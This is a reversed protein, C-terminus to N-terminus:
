EGTKSQKDSDKKPTGRLILVFLFIVVLLMLVELLATM